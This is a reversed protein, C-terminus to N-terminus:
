SHAQHQGGINNLSYPFTTRPKLMWETDRKQCVTKAANESLVKIIQITYDASKCM